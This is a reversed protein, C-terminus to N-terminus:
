GDGTAGQLIYRHGPMACHLRFDEYLLQQKFQDLCFLCLWYALKVSMAHPSRAVGSSSLFHSHTSAPSTSCHHPPRVGIRLTAPQVSLIPFGFPKRFTHSVRPAATLRRNQAPISRSKCFPGGFLVGLAARHEIEPASQASSDWPPDHRAQEAATAVEWLPPGRAPAIRPSPVAAIHLPVAKRFHQICPHCHVSLMGWDIIRVSLLRQM